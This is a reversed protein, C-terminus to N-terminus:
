HCPVWRWWCRLPASRWGAQGEVIHFAHAMDILIGVPAVESTLATFTCAFLAWLGIM